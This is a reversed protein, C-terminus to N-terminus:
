YIQYFTVGKKLAICKALIHKNKIFKIVKLPM